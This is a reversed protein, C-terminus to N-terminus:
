QINVDQMEKELGAEIDAKDQETLGNEASQQEAKEKEAAEMDAVLKQASRIKKFEAKANEIDQATATKKNGQYKKILERKLQAEDDNGKIDEPKTTKDTSKAAGTKGKNETKGTENEGQSSDPDDKDTPVNFSKLIFYKEAYTLAKGVGKEGAIDVGQGYWTKEITEEPKDANVWVYKIDLETFYTVRKKDNGFKDKGEEIVSNVRSALIEPILLLNMEDMKARIAGLTQSSSVYKYQAGENEKKLHPVSKRVEVLKQYINM